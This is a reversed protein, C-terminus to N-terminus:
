VHDLRRGKPKTRLVKSLNRQLENLLDSIIMEVKAEALGVEESIEKTTLDDWFKFHLLRREMAPLTSILVHLHKSLRSAFLGTKVPVVEDGGLDRLYADVAQQDTVKIIEAHDLYVLDPQVVFEM